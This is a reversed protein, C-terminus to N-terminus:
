EWKHTSSIKTLCDINLVMWEGLNFPNLLWRPEIADSPISKCSASGSIHLQYTNNEVIGKRGCYDRQAIKKTEIDTYCNETKYEEYVQEFFDANELMDKM